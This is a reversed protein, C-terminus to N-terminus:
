LKALAEIVDKLYDYMAALSEINLYEDPTHPAGCDPACCFIQLHPLKAIFIGMEMGGHTAVMEMPRGFKKEYIDMALDRIKSKPEFKWGTFDTSIEFSFGTMEALLRIEDVIQFRVSDEAARTCCEMYIKDRSMRLVGNNNSAAVLGAFDVSMSRVGFPILLLLRVLNETTAADLTEAAADTKECSFTFGPDSTSLERRICGAMREAAEVAAAADEVTIVAFAAAPIANMKAGGEIAAIHMPTVDAVAKLIRALCKTANGREEHISLASHGGKLGGVNLTLATGSAPEWVPRGHLIMISGGACSVTTLNDDGTGSDMAIMYTGKLPGADLAMAGALGVEENSTFVCELPGHVYDDEDLLALMHAVATGDDAGLTTGEATLRNGELKLKLPEAAFDFAVGERAVCVMDTHGQLIVGPKDEYGPTAPKKIIVNDAEDRITEFGHDKGFTELWDAVPKTHFSGHPIACLDQFFRYAPSEQAPKMVRM